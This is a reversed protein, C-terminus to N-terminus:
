ESKSRAQIYFSGLAVAVLRDADDHVKAELVSIRQSRELVWAEARLEGETVPALYHIKIELTACRENRELRTVLAAGMATDVLSYIMGGHVLGFPNLHEPRVTADFRARGDDLTVPRLGLLEALGGPGRSV